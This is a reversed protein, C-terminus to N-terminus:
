QAGVVDPGVLHPYNRNKMGLVATHCLNQALMTKGLGNRGILILNRAEQLFDLTLSREILDREIKTPWADLGLAKLTAARTL